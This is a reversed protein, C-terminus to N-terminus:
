SDNDVWTGLTGRHEFEAQAKAQDISEHWTDTITSWTEDCGFLYFGNDDAYQCIALLKPAPAQEGGVIHKTGGTTVHRSDLPTYALVRAGDILKPPRTMSADSV